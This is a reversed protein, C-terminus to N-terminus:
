MGGQRNEAVADEGTWGDELRYRGASIRACPTAWAPHDPHESRVVRRRIPRRWLGGASTDRNMVTQPSGVAPPTPRTTSALGRLRTVEPRRPQAAKVAANEFTLTGDAALRFDVLPNVGNLWAKAIKNRRIILV